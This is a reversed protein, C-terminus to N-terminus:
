ALYMRSTTVKTATMMTEMTVLGGGRDTDGQHQLHVRLREVEQGEEQLGEQCHEGPVVDSLDVVVRKTNEVGLLRHVYDVLCSLWWSSSYFKM